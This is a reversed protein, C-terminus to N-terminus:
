EGKAPKLEYGACAAWYIVSRISKESMKLGAISKIAAIARERENTIEVLTMTM